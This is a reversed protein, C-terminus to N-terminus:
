GPHGDRFTRLVIAGERVFLPLQSQNNNTWTITQKGSHRANTWFDFWNGEPLYVERTNANPTIIPAVLFENGFCYEDAIDFTDPDDPHLLVLPRIIPLGL